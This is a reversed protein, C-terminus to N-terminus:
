PAPQAPVLSLLAHRMSPDAALVKEAKAAARTVSSGERALLQAVTHRPLKLCRLAFWVALVRATHTEADRRPSRLRELDADLAKCLRALVKNTQAASIPGPRALSFEPPPKLAMGDALFRQYADTARRRDSGFLGVAQAAKTWEGGRAGLYFRHTSWAWQDPTACLGARVPNLHLYRVLELLHSERECIIAQYRGQFLHGRQEHRTNFHKAHSTLLRQMVRGLPERGVELLLHFHNPMLVYAYLSCGARAVDQSLRSLFREYDRDDLFVPQGRNGRALVHCFANCITGRAVRATTRV